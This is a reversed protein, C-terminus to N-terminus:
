IAAHSTDGLARRVQTVVRRAEDREREADILQVRLADIIADKGKPDDNNLARPNNHSRHRSLRPRSGDFPLRESSKPPRPPVCLRRSAPNPTLSTSASASKQEFKNSVPLSCYRSYGPSPTVPPTLSLVSSSLPYSLKSTGEDEDECLPLTEELNFLTEPMSIDLLREHVPNL